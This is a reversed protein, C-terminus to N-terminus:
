TDLEEEGYRSVIAKYSHPRPSTSLAGIFYWRGKSKSWHFGESSLANRVEDAPKRPFKAWVWMGVIRVEAGAEQAFLGKAVLEQKSVIAIM